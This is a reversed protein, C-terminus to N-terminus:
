DHRQLKFDDGVSLEGVSAPIFKIGFDITKLTTKSRLFESLERLFNLNKEGSNQDVDILTCRACPGNSELVVSGSNFYKWKFEEFATETEVIINPRFRLIEEKKLEAKTFTTFSARNVILIPASDAFTVEYPMERVASTHIRAKPHALKVLSCEVGLCQSLWNQVVNNYRFCKVTDKWVTCDIVESEVNLDVEIADCNPYSIKLKHSLIEVSLLAMKPIKRQTIFTNNSDVIMWNRDFEFGNKLVKVNQVRIGRCSKIPYVYLEQIM